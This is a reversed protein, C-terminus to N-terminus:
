SLITRVTRHAIENSFGRRLLYELLRKRRREPALKDFSAKALRLASSKRVRTVASVFMAGAGTLPTRATVVITPIGQSERATEQANDGDQAFASAPSMVSAALLLAKVSNKM